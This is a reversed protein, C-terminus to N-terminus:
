PGAPGPEHPRSHALLTGDPSLRLPLVRGDDLELVADGAAFAALTAGAPVKVTGESRFPGPFGGVMQHWVEFRYDVGELPTAERRRLVGQGEELEVPRWGGFRVSFGM